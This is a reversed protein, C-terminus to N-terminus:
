AKERLSPFRSATASPCAKQPHKSMILAIESLSIRFDLIADPITFSIRRRLALFTLETPNKPKRLIPFAKAFSQLTQLLLGQSIVYNCSQNKPFVFL